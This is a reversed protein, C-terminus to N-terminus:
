TMVTLVLVKTQTEVQLDLPDEDRERNHESQMLDAKERKPYEICTNSPVQQYKKVTKLAKTTVNTELTRGM